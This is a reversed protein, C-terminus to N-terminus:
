RVLFILYYYYLIPANFLLSDLRDLVGGHGPILSSTDKIGSGRKLLSECWDGVQGVAGLIFGLLLAHTLKLEPFFWFHSLAAGALSGALGGIGGEVTKKPSVVPLLPRKGLSRGVLMAVSDGAFIVLFFFSLLQASLATTGGEVMRLNILYGLLVGIYVVGAVNASASVLATEVSHRWVMHAILGVAMVTVLALITYDPKGGWFGMIVVVGGIWGIWRPGKSDVKEAIMQFERIGLVATLAVFGNFVAPPAYWLVYILLPVALATTLLRITM